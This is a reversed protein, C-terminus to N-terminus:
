QEKEKWQEKYQKYVSHLLLLSLGLGCVDWLEYWLQSIEATFLFLGAILTLISIKNM